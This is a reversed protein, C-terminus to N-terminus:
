QIEEKIYVIRRLLLENVPNGNKICSVVAKEDRLLIQKLYAEYLPPRTKILIPGLMLEKESYATKGPIALMVTYYRRNEYAISENELAYDISILTERLERQKSHPCLILSAGCLKNKGKQLIDTITEGGM